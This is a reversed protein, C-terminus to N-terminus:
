VRKYDMNWVQVNSFSVNRGDHLHILGIDGTTRGTGFETPQSYGDVDSLAIDKRGDNFTINNVLVGDYGGVEFCRQPATTVGTYNNDSDRENYSITTPAIVQM